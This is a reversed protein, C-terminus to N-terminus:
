VDYQTLNHADIIAHLKAAYDPDTAYGAKAIATAFDKGNTITLAAHYRPNDKFFAAHDTLCEGWGSYKRWLADVTVFLGGEYEKTPINIAAGHWSADAKVGFLNFATTALYSDGWGSELAAEALTFSVPVSITTTVAKAAPLLAAFFTQPTM